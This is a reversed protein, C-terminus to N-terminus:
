ETSKSPSSPLMWVQEVITQASKKAEDEPLENEYILIATREEIEFEFQDRMEPDELLEDLSNVKQNIGIQDSVFSVFPNNQAKTLKTLESERKDEPNKELYEAYYDRM